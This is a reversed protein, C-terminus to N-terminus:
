GTVDKLWPYALGLVTNGLGTLLLLPALVMTPLGLYLALLSLGDFFDEYAFFLMLVFAGGGLFVFLMTLHVIGAPIEM